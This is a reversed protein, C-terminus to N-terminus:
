LEISELAPVMNDDWVFMKVKDAVTEDELKLTYLAEGGATATEREQSISVLTGDASYKAIYITYSLEEVTDNTIAAELNVKNGDNTARYTIQGDSFPATGSKSNTIRINDIKANQWWGSFYNGVQIKGIGQVSGHAAAGSVNAADAGSIWEPLGDVPNGDVFLRYTNDSARTEISIHHWQEVTSKGKAIQYRVTENKNGNLAVASFTASDTSNDSVYLEFGAFANGTSDTLRVYTETSNSVNGNDNGPGWKTEPKFDFELRVDGTTYLAAIQSALESNLGEEELKAAANERINVSAWQSKWWDKGGNSVRLSHESDMGTDYDILTSDGSGSCIWGKQGSTIISVMEEQGLSEFDEIYTFSYRKNTKALINAYAVAAHDADLVYVVFRKGNVAYIENVTDEILATGGSIIDGIMPAEIQADVPKIVFQVDSTPLTPLTIATKDGDAAAAVTIDMIESASTYGSEFKTELYGGIEEVASNIKTNLEDFGEPKENSTQNNRYINTGRSKDENKYQGSWLRNGELKLNTAYDDMYLPYGGNTSRLRKGTNFNYENNQGCSWAYYCGGDSMDMMYDNTMNYEIVNYASHQYPQASLGNDVPTGFASSIAPDLALIDDKRIAYQTNLNGYTDSYARIDFTSPNMSDADAGVLMIATYPVRSIKNYKVDNYGSGYISTASSHQYPAKGLDHINNAFVTNHHNLDTTGPGYGKLNVGGAGMDGMENHVIRNNQAYHELAVGYTGTFMITSDAVVCDSVGQMFIAADTNEANRISLEPAMKNDSWQDEPMRDSYLFTLDRFEINSVQKEWNQEEEDGQLRIIEKAYPAIANNLDNINEPWFYVKGGISDVCWEGPEDLFKPANLFNYHGGHQFLQYGFYENEGPAIAPNFSELRATRNDIDIERIIPLFNWWEVPLMHMEIDGNDPLAILAASEKEKFKIELGKENRQVIPTVIGKDLTDWERWNDTNFQRSAQQRKGNVYLDHFRWGEQIDAVFVHGAAEATMGTPIDGTLKKFGEIQKGSHIVAKEDPYSRYVIPKGTEGSDDPTFLITQEVFYEGDRLYVTIGGEPLEQNRVFDRAKEITAFPKEQSGDGTADNGDKAVYYFTNCETGVVVTCVATEGDAATVTIISTGTKKANVIGTDSVTVVSTDSSSWQEGPLKNKLNNYVTSLTTADGVSLSLSSHNLAFPKTATKLSLFAAKINDIRVTSNWGGFAFGGIKEADANHYTFVEQGNMSLIIDSKVCTIRYANWDTGRPVELASEQLTEGNDKRLVVKDDYVGLEYGSDGDEGSRVYLLTKEGVTDAKMDFSLMMDSCDELYRKNFANWGGGQGLRWVKGYVGGEDEVTSIQEGIYGGFGGTADVFKSLPDAGEFDNAYLKADSYFKVNLNDVWMTCRWGGFAFGGTKETDLSDYSFIETGNMYMVLTSGACLVRYSNWDTGRPVSMTESVLDENGGDKRLIVQDNYISIEYGSNGNAGAKTTVMVRETISDVRMDFTMSMNTYGTLYRKNFANWGGGQGLRWVKGYVGGEDEIMSIQENAYGDYNNDANIFLALPNEGEFDNTYSTAPNLVEEASAPTGIFPVTGLVFILALIMSLLRKQM